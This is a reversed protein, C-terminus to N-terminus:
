YYCNPLSPLAPLRPLSLCQLQPPLEGQLEQSCARGPQDCRWQRPPPRRQKCPQWGWWDPPSWQLLGRSPPLGREFLSLPRLFVQLVQHAPSNQRCESTQSRQSKPRQLSHCLQWGLEEATLLCCQERKWRSRGELM